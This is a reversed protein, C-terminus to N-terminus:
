GTYIYYAYDTEGGRHLSNWESNVQETPGCDRPFGIGPDNFNCFTWPNKNTMADEMSSFLNFDTNRKNTGLGPPDDFWNSLFLNPIDIGVPPTLRKYIINQHSTQSCSYCIRRIYFPAFPVPVVINKWLEPRIDASALMGKGYVQTWGNIAPAQFRHGKEFLLDEVANTCRGDGVITRQFKRFEDTTARGEDRLRKYYEYLDNNRGAKCANFDIDLYDLTATPAGKSPFDFKYFETLNIETCDARSVIPSQFPLCFSKRLLSFHLQFACANRISDSKRL